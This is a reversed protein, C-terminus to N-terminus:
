GRRAGARQERDDVIQVRGILLREAQELQQGAVQV